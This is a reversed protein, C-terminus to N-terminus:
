RPKRILKALPYACEKPLKQGALCLLSRSGNKQRDINRDVLCGFECNLCKESQLDLRQASAAAVEANARTWDPPFGQEVVEVNHLRSFVLRGRDFSPVARCIIHTNSGFKFINQTKESIRAFCVDDFLDYGVHACEFVALWNLFAYREHDPHGRPRFNPKISSITGELEVERGVIQDLWYEFDELDSKFQRFEEDSLKLRPQQQYKEDYFQKCSFCNKGVHKYKKPCAHGKDLLRCKWVFVMCGDPYCKKEKLVHYPTVVSGFRHHSSHSCAFVDARKYLNSFVKRMCYGRHVVSYVFPWSEFCSM